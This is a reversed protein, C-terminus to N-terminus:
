FGICSSGCVGEKGLYRKVEEGSVKVGCLEVGSMAVEGLIEMSEVFDEVRRALTTVVFFCRIMCKEVAGKWM